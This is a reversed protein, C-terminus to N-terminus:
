QIMNNADCVRQTTTCAAVPPSVGMTLVVDNVREAAGGSGGEVRRRDLPSAQKGQGRGPADGARANTSAAAKSHLGPEDASEVDSCFGGGGQDVRVGGPM